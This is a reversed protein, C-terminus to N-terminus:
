VIECRDESVQGEGNGVEELDFLIQQFEVRLIIAECSALASVPSLHLSTPM